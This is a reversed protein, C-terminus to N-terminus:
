VRQPVARALHWAGALRRRPGQRPQIRAPRLRHEERERRCPRRRPRGGRCCGPDALQGTDQHARGPRQERQTRLAPRLLDPQRRADARGQRVRGDGAGCRHQRWQVGPLDYRGRHVRAPRHPEAPVLRRPLLREAADPRADQRARGARRQTDQAGHEGTDADIRRGAGQQQRGEPVPQPGPCRLAGPGPRGADSDRAAARLQRDHGRHGQPRHQEDLVLQRLHDPAPLCARDRQRARAHRAHAPPVERPGRRAGLGPRGQQLRVVAARRRGVLPLVHRRCRRQRARDLA